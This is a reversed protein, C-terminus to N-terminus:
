FATSVIPQSNDKIPKQTTPNLPEKLYYKPRPYYIGRAMEWPTLSLISTVSSFFVVVDLGDGEAGVALVTHRQGVAIWILLVGWWQFSSLAM